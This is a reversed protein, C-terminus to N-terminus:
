RAYVVAPPPAAYVVLVAVAPRAIQEGNAVMCQTYAVNGLQLAAAATIHDVLGARPRHM